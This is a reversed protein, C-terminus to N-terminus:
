VVVMEREGCFLRIARILVDRSKYRCKWETLIHGNRPDDMAANWKDDETKYILFTFNKIKIENIM